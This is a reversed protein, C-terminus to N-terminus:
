ENTDDNNEGEEMEVAEPTETLQEEVKVVPAGLQGPKKVTSIIMNDNKKIYITEETTNEGKGSTVKFVVHDESNSVILGGNESPMGNVFCPVKESILADIIADFGSKM